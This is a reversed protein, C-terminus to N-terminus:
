IGNKYSCCLARHGCNKSLCCQLYKEKFLFDLSENWELLLREKKKKKEDKILLLFDLSENIYM